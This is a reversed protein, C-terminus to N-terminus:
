EAAAAHTLAARHRVQDVIPVRGCESPTVFLGLRLALRGASVSSTLRVLPISLIPGALLPVFWWLTVPVWEYIALGAGLGVATHLAFARVVTFTHLRRGGRFQSGWGRTEGMLIRLVFTSQSLMSIPALLTSFIAELLVSATVRLGSGHAARAERDRLVLLLAFLKPGYLLLVMTLVLMAFDFTHSIGLALLPYRGIYIVPAIHPQNMVVFVSIVLMVLWLPSSLYSMVGSLFHGRSETRFGQGFILPLHQLNGQCWRRDRILHDILTPPPEEYSGDLHNV